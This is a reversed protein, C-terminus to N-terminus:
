GIRPPEGHSTIKEHLPADIREFATVIRDALMQIAEEPTNGIAQWGWTVPVVVSTTSPDSEDLPGPLPIHGYPDNPPLAESFDVGMARAVWRDEVQHTAQLHYWLHRVYLLRDYPTLAIRDMRVNLANSVRRFQDLAPISRGQEWNAITTQSVGAKYALESQTLRAAERLEKITRM